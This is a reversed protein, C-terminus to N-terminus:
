AFCQRCEPECPKTSLAEPKLKLLCQMQRASETKKLQQLDHSALYAFFDGCESVCLVGSGVRSGELVHINSYMYIQIHM